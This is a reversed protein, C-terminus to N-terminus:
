KAGEWRECVYREAAMAAMAGTGASTIAQRYVGDACDGAVFVGEVNTAVFSDGHRKIYGNGDIDLYKAFQKTNPM